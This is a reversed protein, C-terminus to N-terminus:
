LYAGNARVPCSLRNMTRRKVETSASVSRQLRAMRVAADNTALM